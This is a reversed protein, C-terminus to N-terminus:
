AYSNVLSVGPLNLHQNYIQKRAFTLIGSKSARVLINPDDEWLVVENEKALDCALLIRGSGLMHLEDIVIGQKHFWYLTDKFIRKYVHSPRATTVIIHYGYSRMLNIAQQADSYPILDRYGGSEEYQEKLRYYDPYNMELSDDMLLSKIEATPLEMNQSRLWNLFSAQYDALTGDVDTILIKRGRLPEAFEMQLKFDLIEGKEYMANLLDEETFGWVQAISIAFKTIDAIEELVNLPIVKKGSERRHRKWRIEKLVESIQDALGLLYQQTWVHPENGGEIKFIKQNYERQQKWVKSLM